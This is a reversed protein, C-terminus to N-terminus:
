GVAWPIFAITIIMKCALLKNDKIILAASRLSFRGDAIKYGVDMKM